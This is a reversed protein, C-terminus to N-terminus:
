RGLSDDRRNDIFHDIRGTCGKIFRGSAKHFRFWEQEWWVHISPIEKEFFQLPTMKKFNEIFFLM